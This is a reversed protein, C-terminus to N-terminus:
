HTELSQLSGFSSNLRFRLSTCPSPLRRFPRLYRCLSLVQISDGLPDAQAPQDRRGRYANAFCPIDGYFGLLFTGDMDVERSIHLLQFVQFFFRFLIKRNCSSTTIYFFYPLLSMSKRNSSSIKASFFLTRSKTCFSTSGKAICISLSFLIG